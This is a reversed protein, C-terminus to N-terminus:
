YTSAVSKTQCTEFDKVQLYREKITPHTTLLNNGRSSSSSRTDHYWTTTGPVMTDHYVDYRPPSNKFIRSTNEAVLVNFIVNRVVSLPQCVCQITTCKPCSEVRDCQCYRTAMKLILALFYDIQSRSFCWKKPYNRTKSLHFIVENDRRLLGTGGSANADAKSRCRFGDSQHNSKYRM